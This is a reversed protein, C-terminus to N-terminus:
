MCTLPTETFLDMTWLSKGFNTRYANERTGPEKVGNMIRGLDEQRWMWRIKRLRGFLSVTRIFCILRHVLSMGQFNDSVTHKVRAM